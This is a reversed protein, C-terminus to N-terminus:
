YKSKFFENGKNKFAEAKEQEDESFDTKKEEKSQDTKKDDSASAGASTKMEDINVSGVSETDSILM